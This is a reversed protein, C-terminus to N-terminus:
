PRVTRITATPHKATYEAVRASIVEPGACIATDVVGGIVFEVCVMSSPLDSPSLPGSARFWSCGTQALSVAGLFCLAILIKGASASDNPNRVPSLPPPPKSKGTLAMPKGKSAIENWVGIAYVVLIPTSLVFSVEVAAGVPATGSLAWGLGVNLATLVGACLGRLKETVVVPLILSGSRLSEILAACIATVVMLLATTANMPIYTM